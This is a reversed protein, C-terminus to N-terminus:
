KRVFGSQDAIWDFRRIPISFSILESTFGRCWSLLLIINSKEKGSIDGDGHIIMFIGVDIITYWSIDEYGNTNPVMKRIVM